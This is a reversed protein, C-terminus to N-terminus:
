RRGREKKYSLPRVGLRRSRCGCSKKRQHVVDTGKAIFITGCICRCEYRAPVGWGRVDPEVREIITILGYTRGVVALPQRKGVRFGNRARSLDM